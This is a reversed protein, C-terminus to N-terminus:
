TDRPELASKDLSCESQLLVIEFANITKQSPQARSCVITQTCSQHILVASISGPPDLLHWTLLSLGATHTQETVVM